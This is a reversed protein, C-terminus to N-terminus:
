DKRYRLPSVFPALRRGSPLKDFRITLVPAEPIRKGAKVRGRLRRFQRMTITRGVEWRWLRLQDRPTSIAVFFAANNVATQLVTRDWLEAIRGHRERYAAMREEAEAKTLTMHGTFYDVPLGYLSGMRDILEQSFSRMQMTEESKTHSFTTDRDWKDAM